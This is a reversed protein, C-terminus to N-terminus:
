PSPPIHVVTPTFSRVIFSPSPINSQGTKPYPAFPRDDAKSKKQCEKSKDRKIPAPGEMGTVVTSIPNTNKRM